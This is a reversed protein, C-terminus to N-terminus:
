RRATRLIFDVEAPGLDVARGIEERSMGSEALHLVRRRPSRGNAAPPSAAPRLKIPRRGAPATGPDGTDSRVDAGGTPAPAGSRGDDATWETRQGDPRGGAGGVDDQLRDYVRSLLGDFERLGTLVQTELRRLEARARALGPDLLGFRNLGRIALMAFLISLVAALIVARTLEGSTVYGQLDSFYAEGRARRTLDSEWIKLRATQEGLESDRRALEEYARHLAAAGATDAPTGPAPEAASGAPLSAMAVAAIAAPIASRWSTSM